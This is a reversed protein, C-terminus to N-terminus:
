LSPKKGGYGGVCPGCYDNPYFRIVDTDDEDVCYTNYGKFVSYHCIYAKTGGECPFDVASCHPGSAGDDEDNGDMSPEDVPAGANSSSSMSAAESSSEDTGSVDAFKKTAGEPLNSMGFHHNALDHQQQAAGCGGLAVVRLNDIGGSKSTISGNLDFWFTVPLKGSTSLAERPVTVFVEHVAVESSSLAPLAERSWSIGRVSGRLVHSSERSFIGLDVDTTGITLLIRDASNWSGFEYVHFSISVKETADVPLAFMKSSRPNEVGMRGLFHGLSGHQSILGNKWGEELGSEFREHSIEASKDCGSSGIADLQRRSDCSYHATLKFNDIGASQEDIDLSASVVIAIELVGSSAFFGAPIQLKVSHIADNDPLFGLNTGSVTNNCSWSIGDVEGALFHHAPHSSLEGLVVKSAGGVELTVTDESDLWRDIQYLQFELTVSDASIGGSLPVTFNQSVRERSQGLRGLFHGLDSTETTIGGSWSYESGERWSQEDEESEFDEDVLVVSPECVSASLRSPDELDACKCGVVFDLWGFLGNDSTHESAFVTVESEQDVFGNKSLRGLTAHAVASLDFKDVDDCNYSWKMEVYDSVSSLGTSNCWFYPFNELDPSDDEDTPMEGVDEGVWFETSVFAWGESAKFTVDLNMPDDSISFCVTGLSETDGVLFERCENNSANDDSDICMHTSPINPTPSAATCACDVVFDLWGYTQDNSQVLYEQAFAIMESDADISGDGQLQAVTFHAVMQLGFSGMDECNYSWKMEMYDVVSTVGTSNCWFYPFNEIDLSDDEDLPVDGISEGIWYESSVFAWGQTATFSVEFQTGNLIELCMSGAVFSNNALIDYCDKSSQGDTEICIETDNAPPPPPLSGPCDCDVVFDLWGYSEGSTQSQFEQAFAIMESDADISGDEQLQAVTFHAVMQLGFSGMDECNYSWKMEMYDLVSILGTSNCWFYPFNEIDLSDHEDLPVDGISEGIWYESSVFAWGQTATFSVEFQTGNLIELCMSGAVFSNNALIDYCDKSSQDDTEICIEGPTTRDTVNTTVNPPCECMIDVDYWSYLSGVDQNEYVYAVIESDKDVAGSPLLRGLTSQAVIALSFSEMGECLYTWKLPITTTWVSLGSSNCWYYPFADTDLDDEDLPVASINEGVWIENTVFSWNELATFTVELVDTGNEEAIRTCVSGLVMSDGALIDHCEEMSGDVTDICIEIEVDVPPLTQNFDTCPELPPCECNLEFDFWGYLDEQYETAFLTVESEDIVTGNEYVQVFTTQSVVSLDFTSAEECNYEWKLEVRDTWEYVGSSNCWYYPFRDTDITGDSETPVSSVNEGIWYELSIFKWSSEASFTVNLLTEGDEVHVEICM